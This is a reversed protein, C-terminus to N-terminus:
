WARREAALATRAPSDGSSSRPTPAILGVLAAVLGVECGLTFAFMAPNILIYTGAGDPVYRQYLQGVIAALGFSGFWIAYTMVLPRGIRPRILVLTALVIAVAARIYADSGVVAAPMLGAGRWAGIAVIMAYAVLGAASLGNM